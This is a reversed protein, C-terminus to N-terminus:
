VRIGRSKVDHDTIVTGELNLSQRHRVRHVFVTTLKFARKACGLVAGSGCGTEYKIWLRIYNRLRLAPTVIISETYPNVSVSRLIIKIKIQNIPYPGLPNVYLLVLYAYIIIIVKISM